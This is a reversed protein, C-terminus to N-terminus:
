LGRYVKASNAGKEAMNLLANLVAVALSSGGKPGRVIVYPIPLSAVEEKSETAGVYGVPTAIILAPKATGQKVAKVLEFAATPANGIAIISGDLGDKVALRMAAASRTTSEQKALKVTREDDLYTLIKGGFKKIRTPSIGARVMKVDTIIKAGAKIAAVGAEVAKENIVVLKAFEPDATTHVVREIIPVHNAPAKDITDKILPRIIEMSTDYMTTSAKLSRAERVKAEENSEQGLIKLAKQEIIEAIREDAGLPEGYVVQIGKAKLELEKEKTELIEPIEFKTHMGHAIFTPILVIKTAGEEVVKELAEPIAPKNRVMFCIEVNEFEARKRLTNALKELTEQNHPLKSGHGILILYTKNL